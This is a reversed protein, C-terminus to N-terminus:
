WFDKDMKEFSRRIVLSPTWIHLHTSIWDPDCHWQISSIPGTLQILLMDLESPIPLWVVKKAFERVMNM